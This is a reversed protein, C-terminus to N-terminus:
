IVIKVTLDTQGYTRADKWADTVFIIKSLDGQSGRGFGPPIRALKVTPLSESPLARLAVM